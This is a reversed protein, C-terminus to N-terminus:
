KRIKKGNQFIVLQTRKLSWTTATEWPNNNLCAALLEGRPLDTLEHEWVRWSTEPVNISSLRAQELAEGQLHTFVELGDFPQVSWLRV